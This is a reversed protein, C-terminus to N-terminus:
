GELKASDLITRAEKYEEMEALEEEAELLQQLDAHAMALRRHCDPIMMRSEQLVEIQKKIVYEDGAEAKLREVKEEQLKAEKIYFVEEKALSLSLFLFSFPYRSALKVLFRIQRVLATLFKDGHL